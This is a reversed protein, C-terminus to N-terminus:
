SARQPGHRSRRHHVMHRNQLHYRRRAYLYAASGYVTGLGKDSLRQILAAAVAAALPLGVALLMGVCVAEFGGLAGPSFSLGGALHAVAYVLAAQFYSIEGPAVAQVSLWFMTITVLVQVASLASWSLTDRRRLLRVTSDRLEELDGRYRRVWPLRGVLREAAEFLPAVTLVAIATGVAVLSALVGLTAQWWHLAGPVAVVTILLTYILEQVTVAAAADGVGGRTVESVLVCRALEGGPLLGFAQGAFNLLVATGFGIRIGAARLLPRWRVGQLLYYAFSLLALLPAYRVDFRRATEALRGPSALLLLAVVIGLAALYPAAQRLRHRARAFRSDGSM